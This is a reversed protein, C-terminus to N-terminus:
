IHIWLILSIKIVYKQFIGLIYSLSKSSSQDIDNNTESPKPPKPKNLDEYGPAPGGIKNDLIFSDTV